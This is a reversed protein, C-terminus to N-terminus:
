EGPLERIFINRFYLPSNHSQLEIQGTPYIPKDREWYNEMLVNDVVLVNNLYVTVHEQRMIIRFTNWEGLPKDACKLPKSPNKQNNYLGGSGEPWQAPDWIQVQPAGRLYIGSDGFKEIKWDVLMEFNQYDKATCLSEGKGDFFLVDDIIKWHAHMLADAKAQALQLEASTMRARKVPNEVLGKWGTLDKGNFLAMFGDPPQNQRSGFQPNNKIEAIAAPNANDEALALLIQEAKFKPSQEPETKVIKAAAMLAELGLSDNKFYPAIYKLTELSKLEGIGALVMRKEEQRTAIGMIDQYLWLKRLNDMPNEQIIRLAGRIALVRTTLDERSKALQFLSELAAENPWDTLAQIAAPKLAKNNLESQVLALSQNDGIRKFTNLLTTKETENGLNYIEALKQFALKKDKTRQYSAAVAELAARKETSKDLTLSFRTLDSLEDAGAMKELAKLSAIRLAPEDSKLEAIISKKADQVNRQGLIDILIIKSAPPLQSFKETQIPWFQSTQQSLLASQIATLQTKDLSKQLLGVLEPAANKDIQSLSNIAALQVQGSDARLAERVYPLASIAKARGLMDIIEAQVEPTQNRAFATWEAIQSSGTYKQALKLTAIRIKKDNEKMMSFIEPLVQPGSHQVLLDLAALRQQNKYQNQSNALIERCITLGETKGTRTLEDAFKLYHLFHTQNEGATNELLTKAPLYGMNALAFFAMEKSETATSLKMIEPGAPLYKLEGLAKILFLNPKAKQQSFTEYIIKGAKKGGIQVLARAAPDCLQEDALFPKLIAPYTEDGVNQILSILFAKHKVPIDLNLAQQIAEKFWKRQDKNGNQAIFNALGDLAHEAQVSVTSDTSPLKRCIQIIGESKHELLHYFILNQELADTAPLKQILAEVSFISTPTNK